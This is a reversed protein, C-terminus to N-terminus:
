AFDAGSNGMASDQGLVRGLALPAGLHPTAIAILQDILGFWPQTRFRPDELLLRSILGGMSHAVLSVRTAGQAVANAILEGLDDALAFLDRRWDYPFEIQRKAAGDATFGLGTLLDLLPQYFDFCAVHAIIGGPKVEASALKQTRKYGLQTELPTPPWVKEIGDPTPLLLETGMIGPVVIVIHM